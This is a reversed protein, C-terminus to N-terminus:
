WKWSVDDEDDHVNEDNDNDDIGHVINKGRVIYGRNM